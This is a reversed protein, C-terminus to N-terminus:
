ENNSKVAIPTPEANEAITKKPKTRTKLFTNSPDIIAVDKLFRRGLLIPYIFKSRDTLTFQVQYEKGALIMPLVIVPRETSSQKHQKILTNRELPVEIIIPKKASNKTHPSFEFRVWDQNDKEFWEINKAHLSSTKAGTDLKAKSRINWPQFEVNEVWGFILKETLTNETDAALTTNSTVTALLLVWYILVKRLHAHFLSTAVAYQNIM